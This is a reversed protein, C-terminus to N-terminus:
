PNVQNLPTKRTLDAPSREAANAAFSMAFPLSRERNMAANVSYKDAEAEAIEKIKKYEWAPNECRLKLALDAAFIGEISDHWVKSVAFLKALGMDPEYFDYKTFKTKAGERELVVVGDDFLVDKSQQLQYRYLKRDPNSKDTLYTMKFKVNPLFFVPLSQEWATLWKNGDKSIIRTDEHDPFMKSYADINDVVAEVQELPASILMRQEVGIYVSRGETRVANIFVPGSKEYDPDKLAIEGPWNKLLRIVAETYLGQPGDLKTDMPFKEAARSATSLACFGFAIVGIAIKM